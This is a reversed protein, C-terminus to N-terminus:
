AAAVPEQKNKELWEDVDSRRYLIRHGARVYPPGIRESRWRALTRWSTHLIEALEETTLLDDKSM